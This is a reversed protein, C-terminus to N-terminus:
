QTCNSSPAHTWVKAPVTTRWCDEVGLLLSRPRSSRAHQIYGNTGSFRRVVVWDQGDKGFVFMSQEDAWTEIGDVASALEGGGMSPLLPGGDPHRLNLTRVDLVKLSDAAGKLDDPAHPPHWLTVTMGERVLAELLPQFDSDGTLLTCEHMNRRFTHMLMDVAIQVDVKKQVVRKGRLDGLQLHFGDLARIQNLEDMRSDIRAKYTTHSEGRDQAPVADYIFVKHHGSRLTSWNFVVDQGPELYRESIKQLAARLCGMDVFLYRIPNPPQHSSYLPM